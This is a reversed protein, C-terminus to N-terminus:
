HFAPKGSMPGVLPPPAEVATGLPKICETHGTVPNIEALQCTSAASNQAGQNLMGAMAPSSAWMAVGLALAGILSRMVTRAM